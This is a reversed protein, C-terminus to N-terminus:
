KRKDHTVVIEETKKEHVEDYAKSIMRYIPHEVNVLKKVREQFRAIM